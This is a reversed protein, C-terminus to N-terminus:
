AGDGKPKCWNFRKEILVVVGAFLVNMVIAQVLAQVNGSGYGALGLGTLLVVLFNYAGHAACTAELGRTHWAVFAFALGNAFVAIIGLADYSHSFAFVLASAVIAVVPRMTWSGVAQMLLGRYVYEEAAGQFFVLIAFVAFGAATFKNMGDAAADPCAVLGIALVAGFIAFSPVLYKFYASWNFGGRSSSYSSFPRDRVILAALALAPIMAAVTGLGLFAGPGQYFLPSTRDQMQGILAQDGGLWAITLGTLVANFVLTFALTLLGVVLPKFWKYAPFRRPFSTYEHTEGGM